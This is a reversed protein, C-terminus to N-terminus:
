AAPAARNAVAARAARRAGGPGKVGRRAHSGMRGITLRGLSYKFSRFARAAFGPGGCALGNFRQLFGAAATVALQRAGERYSHTASLVPVASLRLGARNVPTFDGVANASGRAFRAGM